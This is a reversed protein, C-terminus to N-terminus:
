KKMKTTDMPKASQMQKMMDKPDIFGWHEVMKGDKVKIVDVSRGDLKTGAPMGWLNDKTTGKMDVMAFVYDDKAADSVVDFSLGDVHNHIDALMHTIEAGGKVETGQPGQHDVADDAILGRITASDGTEIAKYVSRNKALNQETTNSSSDATNNSSTTGSNNCATFIVMMGLVLPLISRKM